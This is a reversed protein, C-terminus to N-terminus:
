NCPQMVIDTSPVRVGLRITNAAANYRLTLVGGNGDQLYGVCSTPDAEDPMVMRGSATMNYQVNNCTSSPVDGGHPGTVTIDLLTPSVINVSSYWPGYTGCYNGSPDRLQRGAFVSAAVVCISMAAAILLTFRM